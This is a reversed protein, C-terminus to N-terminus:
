ENRLAVMPDVRLARHLPFAAALTVALLLVVLAALYALPDVVAGPMLNHALMISFGAALPIGILLGVVVQWGASNLILSFVNRDDAGLARRLGIEGTRGAVEFALVAHIGSIALVLAFVAFIGFMRTLMTQPWFTQARVDEMSRMWFVPLDADIAAVERRVAGSLAPSQTDARIAFGLSIVADQRLPRFVNSEGDRFPSGMLNDAVVGVVDLWPSAPDEPDLRLRQGLASRGPWASAALSASVIAVPPSDARDRPDFLRGELLKIGFATFFDDNISATWARPRVSGAQEEDGSREYGSREYGMLPLNSALAVNRAGPLEGLRTHLQDFFRRRADADVYATGTLGVRGTLLGESAIGLPYRQARLSSDIALAASALLATCLAVEFAVLMRGGRRGPGISAPGGHGLGDRPDSGAVRRAPLWGAVLAVLGAIGVSFVIDSVTVEFDVWYPLHGPVKALADMMLRGGIRAGLYGALSALIAIIATECFVQRMLRGRSAGLASRVSLEHRRRSFRALLLSAVNACSILLVLIVAISMASTSRLLRPPVYFRDMRTINARRYAAADGPTADVNRENFAALLGSLDTDAQDMSVSEGLVGFGEVAEAGPQDAVVRDLILPMWLSQERPFAFKPPMVGVIEVDRGNIRVHRGLIDSAANFRLEWLRHGILAVAPAGPRGDAAVFDRGIVPAVGLTALADGSIWAGALREPPGEQGALNMTGISYASLTEFSRQHARLELYERLALESVDRDGRMDIRDVHVLRDAHEFPLPQLALTNMASFMFMSLGIGAALMLVAVATFVPTRILARLAFRLDVLM